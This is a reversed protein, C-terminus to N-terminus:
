YHQQRPSSRNERIIRNQKRQITHPTKPTNGQIRRISWKAGATKKTSKSSLHLDKTRNQNEATTLSAATQSGQTKWCSRNRNKSPTSPTKPPKARHTTSNKGKQHRATTATKTRALTQVKIGRSPITHKTCSPPASSNKDRNPAKSSIVRQQQHGEQQRNSNEAQQTKVEHHQTAKSTSTRGAAKDQRILFQILLGVYRILVEKFNLDYTKGKEAYFESAAVDMGIVIKESYGAKAIATKLLENPDVVWRLILKLTYVAIQQWLSKVHFRWKLVWRWYVLRNSVVDDEVKNWLQGQNCVTENNRWLILAVNMVISPNNIRILQKLCCNSFCSVGVPGASFVAMIPDVDMPELALSKFMRCLLQLRRIADSRAVRAEVVPVVARAAVPEVDQVRVDPVAAQEEVAPVVARAEVDQVAARSRVGVSNGFAVGDQRHKRSIGSVPKSSVSTIHPQPPASM